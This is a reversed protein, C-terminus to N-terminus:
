NDFITHQEFKNGSKLSNTTPSNVLGRTPEDAFQRTLKTLRYKSLMHMINCNLCVHKYTIMITEPSSLWVDADLEATKEFIHEFALLGITSTKHRIHRCWINRYLSLTACASDVNLMGDVSKILHNLMGLPVTGNDSYHRQKVNQANFRIKTCCAKASLIACNLSM